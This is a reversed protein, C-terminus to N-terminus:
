TQITTFIPGVHHSLQSNVDQVHVSFRQRHASPGDASRIRARRAPLGHRYQASVSLIRTKIGMPSDTRDLDSTVPNVPSHWLSMGCLRWIKFGAEGPQLLDIFKEVLARREEDDPNQEGLMELSAARSPTIRTSIRKPPSHTLHDSSM